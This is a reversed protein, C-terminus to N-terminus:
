CQYLPSICANHRVVSGLLVRQTCFDIESTSPFQDLIYKIYDNSYSSLSLSLSSSLIQLCKMFSELRWSFQISLSFVPTHSILNTCFCNYSKDNFAILKAGIYLLKYFSVCFFIKCGHSLCINILACIYFIM